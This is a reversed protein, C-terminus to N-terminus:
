VAKKGKPHREGQSGKPSAPRAGEDNQDSDTKSVNDNTDNKAGRGRFARSLLPSRAALLGDLDDAQDFVPQWPTIGPPPVRPKIELIEAVIEIPVDHAVREAPPVVLQLQGTDDDTLQRRRIRRRPKVKVSARSQFLRPALERRDDLTWGNPVVMADAHDRCLAGARRSREDDFAELCVVLAYPDIGYTVDAPQSCTPRECTRAM